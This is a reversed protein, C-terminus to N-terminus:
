HMRPIELARGEYYGAILRLTEATKTDIAADALHRCRIAKSHLYAARKRDTVDVLMNFGGLLAGEDDLLPTPYPVFNVCSGDPREAVAEVNRVARKERLAVAMPCQNHPLFEGEETHLKWTVCWADEGVTPTRGSFAICAHNYYTVVGRANTVYIPVPFEDFVRLLSGDGSRAAAAATRCVDAVAESHEHM